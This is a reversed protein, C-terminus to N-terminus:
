EVWQRANIDSQQYWYYHRRATWHSHFFKMNKNMHFKGAGDMAVQNGGKRWESHNRWDDDSNWNDKYSRDVILMWYNESQEITRPSESTFTGNSNSWNKLGTFFNYTSWLFGSYYEYGHRSTRPSSPCNLLDGLNFAVVFNDYIKSGTSSNDYMYAVTQSRVPAFFRDNKTAYSISARYFQSQNSLCVAIKASERARSLSPLLLSVLIALIGIVILLELLTFIKKTMRLNRKYFEISSQNKDQTVIWIM